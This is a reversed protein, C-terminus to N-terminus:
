RLAGETPDFNMQIREWVPFAAAPLDYGDAGCRIIARRAAEFALTALAADDVNAELLEITNPLPEAAQSLSFEVLVRVDRVDETVNWCARIQAQFSAIEEATLPRGNDAVAPTAVGATAEAVAARGEALVAREEDSPRPTPAVSQAAVPAALLCICAGIRLADNM